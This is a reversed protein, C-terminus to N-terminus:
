QQFSMMPFKGPESPDISYEDKALSEPVYKRAILEDLSDYNTIGDMKALLSRSSIVEMEQRSIIRRLQSIKTVPGVLRRIFPDSIYVFIRTEKELPLQTLMYRFEDSKGLSGDGTSLHLTIVRDIELKSSSCVLLNDLLTWFVTKGNKLVHEAVNNQSLGSVGILQLLLKIPKPHALRSIATVDTGDIFFLDPFILAMEEVEGSELFMRLWKNDLGLRSLYKATLDYQLNNSNIVGGFRSIFEAGDKLFPLLTSPKAVHVFFHDHPAFEALPLGPANGGQERLMETFPHSEVEVGNLTAIPINREEGKNASQMIAQM